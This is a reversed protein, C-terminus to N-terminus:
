SEQLAELEDLKAHVRAIQRACSQDTRALGAAARRGADIPLFENLM